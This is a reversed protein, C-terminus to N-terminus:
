IVAANNDCYFKLPRQIHDIVQLGMVFIHLWIDHNSAEYCAIFEAEMTSSTVLTQKAIKWSIAGGALLYFYIKYLM